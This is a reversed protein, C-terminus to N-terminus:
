FEEFTIIERIISSRVYSSLSSDEDLAIELPKCWVFNMNSAYDVLIEEGTRKGNDHLKIGILIYRYWNIVNRSRINGNEDYNKVVKREELHVVFHTNSTYFSEDVEYSVEDPIESIRETHYSHYM